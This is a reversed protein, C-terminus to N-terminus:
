NLLGRSIEEFQSEIRADFDGADTRILCGGLDISRDEVLELAGHFDLKERQKEVFAFDEPNLHVTAIAHRHLKGLTVRALTVAIERDITVERKVIKRAIELALAVLDKEAQATVTPYLNSIEHVTLVLQERIESVQENVATEVEVAFDARAEALGKERATQEIELVRAEAEAIIKAAQMEAQELIEKVAPSLNEEVETEGSQTKVGTRSLPSLASLPPFNFDSVGHVIPASETVSPLVFRTFTQNPPNKFFKISM